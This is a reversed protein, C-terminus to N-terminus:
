SGEGQCQQNSSGSMEMSGASGQGQDDVGSMDRCRKADGTRSGSPRRSQEIGRVVVGDQLYGGQEVIEEIDFYIYYIFPDDTLEAVEPIKRPNRVGVKVRVLETKWYGEMDVEQVTGLMSAIESFGDRHLMTDPVGSIRVWVSYLKFKAGSAVTWKSVKILTRTGKLCFQPYESMEQLRAVSPFKVVFKREGFSNFKWEGGWPFQAKFAETLMGCSIDGELVSIMGIAQANKEGETKTGSQALLLQLGNAGCGVLKLM